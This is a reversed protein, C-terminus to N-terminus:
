APVLFAEDDSAVADAEDLDLDDAEELQADEDDNDDNDRMAAEGLKGGWSLKGCDHCQIGHDHGAYMSPSSIMKTNTSGCDDCEPTGEAPRGWQADDDEDTMIMPQHLDEDEWPDEDSWSNRQPDNIWDAEQLDDDEGEMVGCEEVEDEDVESMVDIGEVMLGWKTADFSAASKRWRNEEVRKLDRIMKTTLIEKTGRGAVETLSKASSRRSHELVLNTIDFIKEM